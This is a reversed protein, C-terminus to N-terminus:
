CRSLYAAVVNQSGSIYRVTYHYPQLALSWRMLRPNRSHTSQLYEL